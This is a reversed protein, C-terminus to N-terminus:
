AKKNWSNCWGKGQVLKKPFITCRGTTDSVKSYLSCNDCFQDKFAVGGREVKLSADKVADHSHQYNVAKALSDNPDILELEGSQSGRRRSTEALGKSPMLQLVKAVGIVGLVKASTKFFERRSNM